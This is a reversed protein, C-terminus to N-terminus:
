EELREVELSALLFAAVGKLDNLDVPESIYYNFDATTDLTGVIVTNNWDMTGNDNPIVWHETMYRYAKKATGVYEGDRDDVYGLRVAKLMAYTFMASGSSEFYNGERGPETIVLWWVGTHPDAAARIHPLLTQLIPLITAHGPHSAPITELIDVLAMMYWGVARDWVEPSHGRDPSAWLATHSFDYGHYLLGTYNAAGPKQVANEFMLRYQLTIDNWATENRPQFAATYQAYFIEAMYIGDLWGQDFYQLKHWFQGQPTRPHSNLQSRFIDMAKKYKEQRTQQYRPPPLVVHDPRNQSSAYQGHVTGNEFVINDIGAQIYDFYGHNGTREFLQRLGYQFEGHEYSVIPAGTADLGNGQGRSIASDAAWVAYSQPRAFTPRPSLFALVTILYAGHFM